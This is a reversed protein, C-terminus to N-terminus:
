LDFFTIDDVDLILDQGPNGEFARQYRGYDQRQLNHRQVGASCENARTMLQPDAVM